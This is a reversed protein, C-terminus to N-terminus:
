LPNLQPHLNLRESEELFRKSPDPVAKLVFRLYSLRLLWVAHPVDDEKRVHFTISGSDPATRHSEAVGLSVLEDRFFLPFSIDLAGDSHIHGIESRGLRFVRGGFRHAHASVGPWTCAHDEIQKLYLLM